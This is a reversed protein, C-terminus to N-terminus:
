WLWIKYRHPEQVDIVSTEVPHSMACRRGAVSPLGLWRCGSEELGTVSPQRMLVLVDSRSCATSEIDKSCSTGSVPRYRRWRDVERGPVTRGVEAASTTLPLDGCGRGLVCTRM